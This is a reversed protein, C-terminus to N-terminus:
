PVTKRIWGDVFRAIDLSNPELMMMHGNCSPAASAIREVYMAGQMVEKGPEGAYHGGLVFVSRTTAVMDARAPLAAGWLSLAVALITSRMTM